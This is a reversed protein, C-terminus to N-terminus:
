FYFYFFVNLTLENYHWKLELFLIYDMYKHALSWTKQVQVLDKFCFSMLTLM